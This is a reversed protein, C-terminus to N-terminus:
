KDAAERWNGDLPFRSGLLRNRASGGGSEEDPLNNVQEQFSIVTEIITSSAIENKQLLNIVGSLDWEIIRGGGPKRLFLNITALTIPDNPTFGEKFARALLREVAVRHETAKTSAATMVSRAFDNLKNCSELLREIQAEHEIPDITLLIPLCFGLKAYDSHQAAANIATLIFERVGPCTQINLFSLLRHDLVPYVSRDFCKELLQRFLLRKDLLDTPLQFLGALLASVHWYEQREKDLVFIKEMVALSVQYWRGEERAVVMGLESMSPIHILECLREIGVDELVCQTALSERFRRHIFDYVVERESNLVGVLIGSYCIQAVVNVSFDDSGMGRLIDDRDQMGKADNVLERAVREIDASNYIAIGREYGCWAIRRVILLKQHAWRARNNVLRFRDISSIPEFKEKDMDLLLQNACASIIGGQGHRWVKSVEEGNRMAEFIAYALITLFLPNNSLDALGIKIGTHLSSLFAGEDLPKGGERKIKKQYYILIKRILEAGNSSLGCVEFCSAKSLSVRHAFFFEKRSTMWIRCTQMARQIEGYDRSPSLWTDLFLHNSLLIGLESEILRAKDIYPIEDYGDLFIALRQSRALRLLRRKGWYGRFYDISNLIYYLVPAPHSVSVAKLPVYIPILGDQKILSEESIQRSAIELVTKRLLTTKGIGAEGLWVIRRARNVEHNRLKTADHGRRPLRLSDAAETLTNLSAEVYETRTNLEIGRYIVPMKEVEKAVRRLYTRELRIINLSSPMRKRLARAVYTLANAGVSGMLKNGVTLCFEAFFSVAVGQRM